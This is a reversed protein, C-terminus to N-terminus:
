PNWPHILCSVFLYCTKTLLLHRRSLLYAQEEQAQVHKSAEQLCIRASLRAPRGLQPLSGNLHYLLLLVFTSHLQVLPDHLLLLGNRVVVVISSDAQLFQVVELFRLLHVPLPDLSEIVIFLKMPVQAQHQLLSSLLRPPFLLLHCLLHVLQISLSHAVQRESESQIEGLQPLLMRAFDRFLLPDRHPALLGNCDEVARPALELKLISHPPVALQQLIAVSRVPPLLVQDEQCPVHDLLTEVHLHVRVHHFLVDAHVLVTDHPPGEVRQMGHQRRHPVPRVDQPRLHWHVFLWVNEDGQLVQLTCVEEVARHVLGPVDRRRDGEEPQFVQQLGRAGERGGKETRQMADVEVAVEM